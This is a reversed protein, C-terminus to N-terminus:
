KISKITKGNVNKGCDFIEDKPNELVGNQLLIYQGM